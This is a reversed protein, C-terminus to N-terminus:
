ATRRWVRIVRGNNSERTSVVFNGQSEIMGQSNWSRFLAGIQNPHGLPKGIADILVDASFLQGIALSKRFITAQMRWAPDIQALVQTDERDFRECYTCLQGTCNHRPHDIRVDPWSLSDFNDFLTQQNEMTGRKPRTALTTLPGAVLFLAVRLGGQIQTRPTLRGRSQYTQPKVKTLRYSM